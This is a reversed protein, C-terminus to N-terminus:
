LTSEYSKRILAFIYEDDSQPNIYLMGNYGWEHTTIDQVLKKNDISYKSDRLLLRIQNAMFEFKVFSRTTRYTIGSKQDMKEEVDQLQLIKDRLTQYKEKIDNSAKSLHYELDYSISNDPPSKKTHKVVTPTFLSELQLIDPEYYQYTFLEINKEQQVAGITYRDFGQAILLVRPQEWNVKIKGLRKEVLLEFHKKNTILWNYYFLGQALVQDNEKWKYEIIVPSNNEDLGFTDVRGEAIPYEKEVFRIGLLSELNDAFLDRLNFESGFGDHKLSYKNVKNNLIKFISM